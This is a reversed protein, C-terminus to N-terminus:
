NIIGAPRFLCGDAFDPNDNYCTAGPSMFNQSGLQIVTQGVLYYETSPVDIVGNRYITVGAKTKRYVAPWGFAVNAYPGSLAPSVVGWKVFPWIDTVYNGAEM